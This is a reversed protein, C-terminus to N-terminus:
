ARLQQFPGRGAWFPVGITLFRMAMLVGLGAWVAGLQASASTALQSGVLMTAVAASASLAMAGAAYAYGGVGYLVGDAVFALANLVQTGCQM